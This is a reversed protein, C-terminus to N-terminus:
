SLIIYISFLKSLLPDNRTDRSPIVVKHGKKWFKCMDVVTDLPVQFDDPLAVACKGRVKSFGAFISYHSTYNKSLQFSRINKNKQELDLAIEYSSDNSGDDMIILEYEIEEKSLRNNLKKYFNLIRSESQYSLLIISIM